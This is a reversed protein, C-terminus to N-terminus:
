WLSYWRLRSILIGPFWILMIILMSDVVVTTWFTEFVENHKPKKMGHEKKSIFFGTKRLDVQGRRQFNCLQKFSMDHQTRLDNWAVPSVSGMPIFIMSKRFLCFLIADVFITLNCEFFGQKAQFSIQLIITAWVIKSWTALVPLFREQWQRNMEAAELRTAQPLVYLQQSTNSQWKWFWPHSTSM